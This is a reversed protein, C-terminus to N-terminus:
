QRQRDASKREYAALVHSRAALFLRRVEARQAESVRSVTPVFAQVQYATETVSEEDHGLLRSVLPSRELKTTLSPWDTSSPALGNGAQDFLGFLLWGVEGTPKALEVEVYEGGRRGEEGTHVVQRSIRQWGNMQYCKTLEHWEAFPYDVSVHCALPERRYQWESSFQGMHDKRGREVRDHKVLTWGDLSAPLDSGAFTEARAVGLTRVEEPAAPVVFSAIQLAGLLGFGALFGYPRGGTALEALFADGDIAPRAQSRSQGVCWNWARTLPNRKKLPNWPLENEGPAVPRLLFALWRDTSALLLLGLAIAAYGLLEHRWGSSLDVQYLAQALAIAVVRAVNALWAWAFSSAVLLAAWLLPRRAAVVFLATVALLVLLSNVGSCAEEVLMRQGPLVLVNGEMLHRVGAVDLVVSAMRTTSSQLWLILRFDWKLPPPVILWMLVWVPLWNRTQGPVAYRGILGGSSLVVAVAALWTSFFLVSATLGLLGCMLLGTSWAPPRMAASCRPWRKWLLWAIGALLLPFFQYHPRFLWMKQLHMLFLPLHGVIVVTSFFVAWRVARRGAEEESPAADAEFVMDATVADALPREELERKWLRGEVEGESRSDRAELAETNGLNVM